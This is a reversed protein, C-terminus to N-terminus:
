GLLVGSELKGSILTKSRPCYSVCDPGLSLKQNIGKQFCINEHSICGSKKDTLQVNPLWVYFIVITSGVWLPSTWPGITGMGDWHSTTGAHGQEGPRDNTPSAVGTCM